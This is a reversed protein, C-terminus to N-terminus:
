LIVPNVFPSLDRLRLSEEVAGPSMLRNLYERAVTESFDSKKCYRLELSKDQPVPAIRQLSSNKISNVLAIQATEVARMGLDFPDMARPKPLAHFLIAGSDLGKSLLHITAGVYEPRNDYLAWFNTAAGRYFPSVGIHINYAQKKVLFDCLPGKIFSAGFVIFLDSDLAEGFEPISISSVEGMPLSRAHVKNSNPKTPDFIREEADRVRAFYEGLVTTTDGSSAQTCEQIAFVRDAVHSLKDILALHRPQNSTFVTVQM